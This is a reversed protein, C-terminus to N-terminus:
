PIHSSTVSLQVYIILTFKFFLYHFLIPPLYRLPRMYYNLYSLYNHRVFFSLFDSIPPTVIISPYKATPNHNKIKIIISDIKNYFTKSFLCGLQLPSINTISPLLAPKPPYLFKNALRFLRRNDSSLDNIVMIYYSSKAYSIALKYIKHKQIFSARSSSSKLSLYIRESKRLSRKLSM